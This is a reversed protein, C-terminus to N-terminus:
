SNEDSDESNEDSDESNEDSDESKEDCEESNEDSDESDDDGDESKEDCEESYDDSDENDMNWTIFANTKCLKRLQEACSVQVAIDAYEVPSMSTDDKTDKIREALDEYVEVIEMDSSSQICQQTDDIISCISASSVSMEHKKEQLNLTKDNVEARVEKQLNKKWQELIAHLEEFSASIDYVVDEGQAKVDATAMEVITIADSYNTETKTLSTM